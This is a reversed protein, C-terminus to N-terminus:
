STSIYSLINDESDNSSYSAPDILAEAEFTKYKADSLKLIICPKDRQTESIHQVLSSGFNTHSNTHTNTHTLTNELTHLESVANKIMSNTAADYKMSPHIFRQRSLNAYALGKPTEEFEM